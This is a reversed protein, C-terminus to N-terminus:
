CSEVCSPPAVWVTIDTGRALAGTGRAEQGGKALHAQQEAEWCSDVPCNWGVPAARAAAWGLCQPTVHALELQGAQSGARGQVAVQADRCAVCRGGNHQRQLCCPCGQWSVSLVQLQQSSDCVGCGRGIWSSPAAAPNHPVICTGRPHESVEGAAPDLLGMDSVLVQRGSCGATRCRPPLLSVLWSGVCLPAHCRCNAQLALPPSPSPALQLSGWITLPLVQLVCGGWGGAAPMGCAPLSRWAHSLWWWPEQCVRCAASLSCSPLPPLCSLAAPSVDNTQLGSGVCWWPTV